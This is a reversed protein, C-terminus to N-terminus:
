LGSGTSHPSPPCRLYQPDLLAHKVPFSNEFWCFSIISFVKPQCMLFYIIFINCLLLVNCLYFICFCQNKCM